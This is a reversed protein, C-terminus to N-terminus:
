QKDQESSSRREYPSKLGRDAAAKLQPSDDGARLAAQYHKVALDREQDVDYIRGLYIHSWAILRADKATRLTTEFYRIAEEKDRNQIAIQGLLMTARSADTGNESAVQQALKEAGPLDGDSMKQEAVEISSQPNNASNRNKVVETPAKATFSTEQAINRQRPIDMYYLWDPFADKMSISEPEFKVLADYFYRTLVFGESMDKGVEEQRKPESNKGPIMRAEIARILSETVLLAADHKYVDDLPANRIAILIPDLKKMAAPRKLAFPDLTFHLYTHRIEEQSMVGGGPAGVLFYDEGYNRANVHGPGVMPEVYIVFHRSSTGSIPIKLYLDTALVMNALPDHVKEMIAQYQPQVKNWITNLGATRYFNALLPVFGLVYSADPPLDAEKVRPKFDPAPGLNLALSIYQSLIRNSEPVLHDRYFACMERSAASAEPSQGTARQVATIVEERVPDSHALDDNYGCMNIATVVTFVTENPELEVKSRQQGFVCPSALLAILGSLLLRRFLQVIRRCERRFRQRFNVSEASLRDFAPESETHRSVLYL